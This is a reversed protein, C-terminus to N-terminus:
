EFDITLHKIRELEKGYEVQDNVFGEYEGSSAFHGLVLDPECLNDKHDGLYSLYSSWKYDRLDGALNSVIPNIHIYRSVHLLQEDTEVLVNKFRSEFLPGVRKYKTNIYHSYSNSLHQMYWTIGGDVLQKILFHFHNPMLCYVLLEVKPQIISIGLAGGSGPDPLSDSFRITSTKYHVAVDFIRKYDEESFFIDGKNVGRNFIHYISNTVIPVKRSM